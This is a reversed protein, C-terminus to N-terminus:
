WLFKGFRHRMYVHTAWQMELTVLPEFHHCEITVSSHGWKCTVSSKVSIYLFLHSYIKNLQSLKVSLLYTLWAMLATCLVCLSFFFSNIGTFIMFYHPKITKKAATRLDNYILPWPSVNDVDPTKNFLYWCSGNSQEKGFCLNFLLGDSVQQMPNIVAAQARWWSYLLMKGANELM